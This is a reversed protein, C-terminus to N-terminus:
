QKNEPKTEPVLLRGAIDARRKERIESLRSNWSEDIVISSGEAIAGGGIGSRESIKGKFMSKALTADTPDVVLTFGEPLERSFKEVIKKMWNSYAKSKRDLRTAGAAEEFVSDLLHEREILFTKKAGVRALSLEKNAEAEEKAHAREAETKMRANREAEAKKLLESALKKADNRRESALKRAEEIIGGAIEEVEGDSSNM